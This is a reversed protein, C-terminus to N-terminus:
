ITSIISHVYPSLIGRDKRNHPNLEWGLYWTFDFAQLTKPVQLGKQNEIAMSM